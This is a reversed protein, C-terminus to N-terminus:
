SEEKGHLIERFHRVIEEDTIGDGPAETMIAIMDMLARLVAISQGNAEEVVEVLPRTPDEGMLSIFALAFARDAIDVLRHRGTLYPAVMLDVAIEVELDPVQTALETLEKRMQSPAFRGLQTLIDESRPDSM